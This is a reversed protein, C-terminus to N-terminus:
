QLTRDELICRRATRHFDVSKELFCIAEMKLASSHALSCSHKSGVENQNRAQSVRRGQLHLRYTGRVCRNIKVPSCTTIYWFIYSNTTVAKLVEFGIFLKNRTLNKKQIEM